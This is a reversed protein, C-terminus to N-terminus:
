SYPHSVMWGAMISNVQEGPGTGDADNLIWIINSSLQNASVQPLGYVNLDAEAGYYSGSKM